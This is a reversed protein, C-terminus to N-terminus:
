TKRVRPPNLDNPSLLQPHKLWFGESIIDEHFVVVEDSQKQVDDDPLDLGKTLFSGKRFIQPEDNYNIGFKSFLIEHKDKSLTGKLISEAERTSHSGQNVLAWFATNYLNNVHVDAQRWSLYDRLHRTTPYLVIRGDFSPITTMPKRMFSAWQAVYAASFLSVVTSLIKSERRSFLTSERRLIFSFEDSQGFAFAIHDDFTRMVHKAAENALNLADEDNPKKFEHVKAFKTFSRGDLRIVCWCGPLLSDHKEFLRVYEFRSGAMEFRAFPLFLSTSKPFIVERIQIKRWERRHKDGFM